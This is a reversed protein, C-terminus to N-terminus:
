RASREPQGGGAMTLALTRGRRIKEYRDHLESALYNRQDQDDEAHAYVALRHAAWFKRRADQLPLPERKNELLYQAWVGATDLLFAYAQVAQWELFVRVHIIRRLATDRQM